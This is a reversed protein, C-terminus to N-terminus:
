EKFYSDIRHEFPFHKLCRYARDRISKPVKPTAKPNLLDRMFDRTSRLSFKEEYPLTM